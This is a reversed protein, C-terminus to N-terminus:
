CLYYSVSKLRFYLSKSFCFIERDKEERREKMKGDTENAERRKRVSKGEGGGSRREKTKM